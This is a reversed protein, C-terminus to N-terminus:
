MMGKVKIVFAETVNALGAIEAISFKNTLLLNRVFEISKEEKGEERGEKKGKKIFYDATSM